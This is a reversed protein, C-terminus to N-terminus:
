EGGGALAFEDVRRAIDERAAAVDDVGGNAAVIAFSPEMADRWVRVAEASELRALARAVAAPWRQPALTVVGGGDPPLIPWGDGLTPGSSMPASPAPAAPADVVPGRAPPLPSAAPAEDFEEPAYVGLMVEPCYRRAWVRAGHYALMQDASKTWHANNTRADRLRVDVSVPETEGRLTASVTVTRADGEGSYTYHIRGSIAGSSQIAAAVLKGSFMPKGQPFSIETAVAYPSMNWRMAQEVVFLCAGPTQLEKPFFGAKAMMSAIEMADRMNTPLLALAGSGPRQTTISM